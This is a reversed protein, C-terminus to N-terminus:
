KDELEKKLVEHLYGNVNFKIACLLNQLNSPKGTDPDIPTGGRWLLWLDLLHRVLSKQYVPIPIGAQWNDSDRITGDKQKRHSQMYEAFRHEVSPSIFGEFDHKNTDINRTAGTDFKRIENIIKTNDIKTYSGIGLGKRSRVIKIKKVKKKITKVPSLMSNTWGWRGKDVDLLYGGLDIKTITATKGRFRIMETISQPNTIKVKDGLKYKM